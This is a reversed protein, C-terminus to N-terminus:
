MIKYIWLEFKWHCILDWIWIFFNKSKSNQAQNSIQIKFNPNLFCEM